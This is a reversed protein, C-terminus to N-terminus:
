YAGLDIEEKRRAMEKQHGPVGALVAAMASQQRALPSSGKPVAVAGGSAAQAAPPHGAPAAPVAPPGGGGGAAGLPPCHIGTEANKARLPTCPNCASGENLRIGHPDGSPSPHNKSDGNCSNASVMPLCIEVAPPNCDRGKRGAAKLQGRARSWTASAEILAPHIVTLAVDERRGKATRSRERTIVGAKVLDAIAYSANRPSYLKDTLAGPTLRVGAHPRDPRVRQALHKLLIRCRRQSIADAMAADGTWIVGVALLKELAWM